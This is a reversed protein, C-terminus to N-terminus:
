RLARRLASSQVSIMAEQASQLRQGQGVRAALLGKAARDRNCKGKVWSRPFQWVIQKSSISKQQLRKPIRLGAACPFLERPMSEEAANTGMITKPRSAM